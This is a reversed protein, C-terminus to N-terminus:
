FRSKPWVNVVYINCAIAIFPKLYAYFYNGFLTCIYSFYMIKFYKKM